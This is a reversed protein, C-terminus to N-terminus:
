AVSGICCSVLARSGAICQPAQPVGGFPICGGSPPPVNTGVRCNTWPVNGNTCYGLPGLGSAGVSSLDQARPAEYLRRKSQESM